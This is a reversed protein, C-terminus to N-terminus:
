GPEKVAAILRAHVATPLRGQRPLADPSLKRAALQFLVAKAIVQDPPCDIERAFQDRIALLREFREKAGPDLAKFEDTKYIGPVGRSFSSPTKLVLARVLDAPKGSALIKELLVKYMEFLSEVDSLAYEVAERDIPRRTWNHMQFQKKKVTVKGFLEETLGSLGKNVCGAVEAFIQLDLVSNLVIKSEKYVLQVDSGAGFFLKLVRRDELFEKLPEASVAFPDIIFFSKGDFIQVLCLKEGYVHLNFEGEFDMALTTIQREKLHRVFAALKQDTDITEYPILPEELIM